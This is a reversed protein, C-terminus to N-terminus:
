PQGCLPQALIAQRHTARHRLVQLLDGAAAGTRYLNRLAPSVVALGILTQPM